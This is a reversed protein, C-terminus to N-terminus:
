ISAPLRGESAIGVGEPQEILFTSGASHASYAAEVTFDVVTSSDECRQKAV